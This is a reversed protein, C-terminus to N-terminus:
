RKERALTDGSPEDPDGQPWPARIEMSRVLDDEFAYAHCVIRDALVTGGLDRVMQHVKVMVRGTEDEEFSLPEVQPDVLDWQRLWYARRKV